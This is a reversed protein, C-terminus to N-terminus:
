EYINRYKYNLAEIRRETGRKYYCDTCFTKSQYNKDLEDYQIGKFQLSLSKIPYKKHCDYCFSSTECIDNVQELLNDPYARIIKNNMYKQIIKFIHICYDKEEKIEEKSKTLYDFVISACDNGIIQKVLQM